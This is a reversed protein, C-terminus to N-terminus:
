IHRSENVDIQIQIISSLRVNHFPLLILIGGDWGSDGVGERSGRKERVVEEGKGEGEARLPLSPSPSPSSLRTAASGVVPLSL